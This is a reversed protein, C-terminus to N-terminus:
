NCEIIVVNTRKGSASRESNNVRNDSLMEGAIQKCLVHAALKITNPCTCVSPAGNFQCCYHILLYRGYVLSTSLFWPGGNPEIRVVRESKYIDSPRSVLTRSYKLHFLNPRWIFIPNNYVDLLLFLM